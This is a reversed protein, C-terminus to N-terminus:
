PRWRRSRSSQSRVADELMSRLAIAAYYSDGCGTLVIARWDRDPLRSAAARVSPWVSLGASGSMELEETMRALIAGRQIAVGEANVSGGRARGVQRMAAFEVARPEIGTSNTTDCAGGGTSPRQRRTRSSRWLGRHRPLGSGAGWAMATPLDSGAAILACFAGCYADGAGTPDVVTTPVAPMRYLGDADVGISGDAGLKVVVRAVGAERLAVAAAEVDGPWLRLVEDRSPLFASVRRALDILGMADPEIQDPIIVTDITTVIPREGIADLLSRQSEPPIGCIHVAAGILDDVLQGFRTSATTAGRDQCIASTELRGPRM